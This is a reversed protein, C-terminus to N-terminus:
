LTMIFSHLLFERERAPQSALIRFDDTIFNCACVSVGVPAGL